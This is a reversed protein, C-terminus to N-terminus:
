GADLMRGVGFGQVRNVEERLLGALWGLWLEIGVVGRNQRAINM